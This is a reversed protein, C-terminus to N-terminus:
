PWRNQSVHYTSSLQSFYRHSHDHIRYLLLTPLTLSNMCLSPFVTTNLLHSFKLKKDFAWPPQHYLTKLANNKSRSILSKLFNFEFSSIIIFLLISSVQWCILISPLWQLTKGAIRKFIVANSALIACVIVLIYLLLIVYKKKTELFSIQREKVEM